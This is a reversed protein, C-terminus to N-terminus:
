LFMMVSSDEEDNCKNTECKFDNNGMPAQPELATNLEDYGQKTLEEEVLFLQRSRRLLKDTFVEHTKAQTKCKFEQFVQDMEQTCSTINPLVLVISIGLRIMQEQLSDKFRQQYDVKVLM